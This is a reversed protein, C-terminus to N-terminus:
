PAEFAGIDPTQSRGNGEFDITVLGPEGGGVAPSGTALHLDGANRDKFFTAPDASTNSGTADPAGPLDFLSFQAVCGAGGIPNTSNYAIINSTVKVTADCTIAVPSQTVATANAITNFAIVSGPANGGAVILDTFESSLVFVNNTVNLLGGRASIAGDSSTAFLNRFISMQCNSATVEGEFRDQTATLTGSECSIVGGKVSSSRLDIAGNIVEVTVNALTADFLRLTKSTGATFGVATMAADNIVDIGEITVSFAGGTSTIAFAPGNTFNGFRTGTGDIIVPRSITVTATDDTSGGVLHIVTRTASVQQLAYGVSGCPASVTCTGSDMGVSSVHVISAESACVGDAEICVGSACEDDVICGRCTRDEADCQAAETPCQDSTECGVCVNDPACFPKGAVDACDDDVRCGSVCLGLSCVPVAAGCEASTDCEKAVCTSTPNCAQGVDCPRVDNPDVGIAACQAETVCCADPNPKTCAVLILCSLLCLVVANTRM